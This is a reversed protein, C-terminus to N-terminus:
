CESRDDCGDPSIVERRSPIVTSYQILYDGTRRPMRWLHPRARSRRDFDVVAAIPLVYTLEHDSRSHDITSAVLVQEDVAIQLLRLVQSLEDGDNLENLADVLYERRKGGTALATGPTRVHPM